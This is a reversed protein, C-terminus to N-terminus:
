YYFVDDGKFQLYITAAVTVGPTNCRSNESGRSSFVM